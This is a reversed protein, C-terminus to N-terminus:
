DDSGGEPGQIYVGYRAAKRVVWEVYKAKDEVPIVSDEHFGKPVHRWIGRKDRSPPTLELSEFLAHQNEFFRCKLDKHVDAYEDKEYGAGDCIGPLVAM